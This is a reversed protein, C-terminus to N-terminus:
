FNEDPPRFLLAPEHQLISLFQRVYQIIRPTAAGRAAAKKLYGFATLASTLMGSRTFSEIIESAVAAIEVDRGLAHLADIMDLCVLAEDSLMGRQRFNQRLNFLSVLADDPKGSALVVLALGWEPKLAEADMDLERFLRASRHYYLVASSLDGLEYACRGLTDSERAVWALDNVAEGWALLEEYVVQAGRVDGQYILANALLHRVRMCRGTEGLSAYMAASQNLLAVAAEYNGRYYHVIARAHQVIADGLPAGPTKRFEREAHDLADLSADYRGLAALANAREKWAHARLEHIVAAPYGTLQEAVEIAVDAFTLAELPERDCAEGAAQLLKRTVGATLFKRRAALNSLAVRAPNDILQKLLLEAAHEEAALRAALGRIAERV